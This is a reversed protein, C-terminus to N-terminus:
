SGRITSGDPATQACLSSSPASHSRSSTCARACANRLHPDTYFPYTSTSTPSTRTSSSASYIPPHSTLSRLYIKRLPRIRLVYTSPLTRRFSQTRVHFDLSPLRDFSMRSQQCSQLAMIDRVLPADSSKGQYRRADGFLNWQAASDDDSSDFAALEGSDPPLLPFSPPVARFQAPPVKYAAHSPDPTGESIKRQLTPLLPASTLM